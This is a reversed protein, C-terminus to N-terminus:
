MTYEDENSIPTDSSQEQTAEKDSPLYNDGNLTKESVQRSLKLTEARSENNEFIQKDLQMAQKAINLMDSITKQTVKGYCTYEEGCKGNTNQCKIFVTGNINKSINVDLGCMSIDKSSNPELKNTEEQIDKKIRYAYMDNYIIDPSVMSLLSNAYVGKTVNIIKNIIKSNKIPKNDEGLAEIQGNNSDIKINFKTENCQEGNYNKITVPITAEPRGGQTYKINASSFTIENNTNRTLLAIQASDHLKQPFHECAYGIYKDVAMHYAITNIADRPDQAFSDGTIDCTGGLASLSVNGNDKREVTVKIGNVSFDKEKSIGNIIENAGKVGYGKTDKNWTEEPIGEKGAKKRALQQAVFIREALDNKTKDDLSIATDLSLKSDGKELGLKIDEKGNRVFAIYKVYEEKDKTKIKYNNLILKTDPSAVKELSQKFHQFYSIPKTNATVPSSTEHSVNNTNLPKNTTTKTESTTTTQEQSNEKENFPKQNETNRNTESKTNEQKHNGENAKDNEEIEIDNQKIINKNKYEAHYYAKKTDKIENNISSVAANYGFLPLNKVLPRAVFYIINRLPRIVLNRILGILGGIKHRDENKIRNKEAYLNNIKIEAAIRQQENSNLRNAYNINIEDNTKSNYINGMGNGFYPSNSFNRKEVEINPSPSSQETENSEIPEAINEEQELVDEAENLIEDGEHMQEKTVKIGKFDELVVATKSISQAKCDLNNGSKSFVYIVGNSLVADNSDIKKQQEIRFEIENKDTSEKSYFYIDNSQELTDCLSLLPINTNYEGNSKDIFKISPQKFSL